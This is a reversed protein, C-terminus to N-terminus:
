RVRRRTSTACSQMTLRTSQPVSLPRVMVDITSAPEVLRRKVLGDILRSTASPSRNISEAAQFWEGWEHDHGGYNVLDGAHISFRADPAARFSERVLRSWHEKLQVQADGFYLFSFKDHKESATKFHNWESWNVGDGVRYAYKTNPLLGEFHASHFHADDGKDSKFPSTASRTTPSRTDELRKETSPTLGTM